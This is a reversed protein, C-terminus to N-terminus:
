YRIPQDKERAPDHAKGPKEGQRNWDAIFIALNNIDDGQLMSKQAPMTKNPSGNAMVAVMQALDSGHMWWRDRLNPGVGGTGDAAHCTACGASAYVAKGRAIREPNTSLSRLQEETLPGSQNKVRLEALEKLDDKLRDAGLKNGAIHYWGVYLVAWAITLYFLTLWWRPLNNDYEQIGDYHHDRLRDVESGDQTKGPEQEAM